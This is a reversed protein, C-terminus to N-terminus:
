AGSPGFRETRVREAPTGSTSSRTPSPRSSGTPGCVFRAATPRRRGPSSRSAARPRRPRPSGDLRAARRPHLTLELDVGSGGCRPGRARRPLVRRGTTRASLSSGRAAVSSGAARPRPGDGDAARDRLRRRRPAAARRGRRGLRVLRRDPRAARAPRRRAARRGPVALGRRRGAARGDARRAPTAGARLRDLLQAAGPLRGRRHPPRRRAPRRPPRALGPRRAVLTRAAADRPRDREVTAVQAGVPAGPSPPWDTARTGSSAGRTATTTTASRSGSGPSTRPRAARHGRVWKASKWFYLHPVLLRAPGGHEPAAARRRLEYAVWAKGDTVDDLPLNTTYGGDCYAIAYGRRADRRGDLLTDVSVGEWVDHRVEVVEHRLPHGDTVDRAAAGPVRGLDVRATSRGASRSTWTRSTPAPRRARPSCRSTAARPVPRAPTPRSRRRRPPPAPLWTLDPGHGSGVHGARARFARRPRVGRGHTRARGM